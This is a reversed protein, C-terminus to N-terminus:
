LKFLATCVEGPASEAKIWKGTAPSVLWEVDDVTESVKFGTKATQKEAATIKRTPRKDAPKKPGKEAELKAKIEKIIELVGPSIRTDEIIAEYLKSSM